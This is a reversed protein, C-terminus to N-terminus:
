GSTMMVAMVMVVMLMATWKRLEFVVKKELNLMESIEHWQYPLKKGGGL